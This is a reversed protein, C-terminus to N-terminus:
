GGGARGSLSAARLAGGGPRGPTAPLRGQEWGSAAYLLTGVVPGSVFGHAVGVELGEEGVADAAGPVALAGLDVLELLDLTGLALRQSLVRLPLQEVEADA